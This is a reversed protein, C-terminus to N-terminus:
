GGEVELKLAPALEGSSGTPTLSKGKLLCFVVVVFFACCYPCLALGVFRKRMWMRM